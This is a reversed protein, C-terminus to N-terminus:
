VPHAGSAAHVGHENKVVQEAHTYVGIAHMSSGRARMHLGRAHTYVGIAHVYAARARMHLGRAHTYVGIAHM